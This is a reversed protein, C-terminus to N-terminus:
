ATPRCAGPRDRPAARPPAARRRRGDRGRRPGSCGRGRLTSTERCRRGTGTGARAREGRLRGRRWRKPRAPRFHELRFGFVAESMRTGSRGSGGGLTRDHGRRGGLRAPGLGAAEDQDDLVLGRDGVDDAQVQGLGAVAHVDLVVTVVGEVRDVAVLRRRDDEVDPQGADVTDLDAAPQAGLLVPRRDEEDGGAVVLDVADDPELHAGVVVHGFRERRALQDGADGPHQAARVADGLGRRLRDAADREVGRLAPDEGAADLVAQGGGLEVQEGVQHAPGAADEGALLQEALHPAVRRHGAGAGHVHVDGLQAGLEAGVARDAGHAADPVRGLVRAAHAARGLAAARGAPGRRCWLRAVRMASSLTPMATSVAIMAPASAVPRSRLAPAPVARLFRARRASTAWVAVPCPPATASRCSCRANCPRVTRAPTMRGLAVSAVFAGITRRATVAFSM